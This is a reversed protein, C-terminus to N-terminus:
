NESYCNDTQPFKNVKVDNIYEQTAQTIVEHLNAYRKVFKPKFSPDLGLLDNIVLVQGDCHPGAGIGITPISVANTISMALSPPVGEIVISFVGCDELTKAQHEIFQKADSERGQIKYGGMKHISQPTLGIHGMVPIGSKVLHEILDKAQTGELKVANAGIKILNIANNIGLEKSVQYSGFPMDAVVLCKKVARCVAATHHIMIELSVPLTTEFGLQATGVSDGVLIIDIGASDLIGAITADYATLMAIKSKGKRDIIKPITMKTSKM